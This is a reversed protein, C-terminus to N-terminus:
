SLIAIAMRECLRITNLLDGLILNIKFIEDQDISNVSLSNIFNVILNAYIDGIKLERCKLRVDLKKLVQVAIFYLNARKEQVYRYHGSNISSINIEELYEKVVKDETLSKICEIVQSYQSIYLKLVKDIDGTIFRSIQSFEVELELPEIIKIEKSINIGNCTFGEKNIKGIVQLSDLLLNSM